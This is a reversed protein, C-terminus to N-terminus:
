TRRRSSRWLSTLLARLGHLVESTGRPGHKRCFGIIPYALIGVAVILSALVFLPAVM